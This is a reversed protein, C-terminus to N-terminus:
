KRNLNNEGLKKRKYWWVYFFIIIISFIIIYFLSRNLYQEILEQSSGIFYGIVALIVVWIGAGLGTFVVFKAKNMRALGAPLSIIQRIGPILRGIFTSIEGHTRFYGGTKNYAKETIFVYKGFRKILSLILPRGLKVALYYNFLAGAISGLIGMFIVLFLNMQGQAALYAAPIIVVESPFPFFTSELFMLIFIGPYGLAAAVKVIWSVVSDLIEIM